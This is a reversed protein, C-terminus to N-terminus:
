VVTLKYRPEVIARLEYSMLLYYLCRCDAEVREGAIKIEWYKGYM